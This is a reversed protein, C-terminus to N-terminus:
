PLPGAKKATLKRALLVNFKLNPCPVLVAEPGDDCPGDVPVPRCGAPVAGASLVYEKLRDRCAHFKRLRALTLRGTPLRLEGKKPWDV